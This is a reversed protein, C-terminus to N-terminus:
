TNGSDVFGAGAIAWAREACNFCVGCRGDKQQTCSHTIALLKMQDLLAYLEITNRKDCLAFPCVCTAYEIKDPRAPYVGPMPFEGPPTRQSGFYCLDMGRAIADYYGSRGQQSHHLQPYGVKVPDVLECDLTTRVYDVVAAAYHMAGDSRAVTFPTITHTSGTQQRELCLAYLLIASDAGGSVMVGVKLRDAPLEIIIDHQYDDKGTHFIM